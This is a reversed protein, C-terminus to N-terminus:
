AKFHKALLSLLTKRPVLRAVNSRLQTSTDSIIVTPEWNELAKLSKLVVEESSM